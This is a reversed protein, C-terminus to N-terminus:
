HWCFINHLALIHAQSPMRKTVTNMIQELRWTSYSLLVNMFEYMTRTCSLLRPTNLNNLDYNDVLYLTLLEAPINGFRSVIPLMDSYVKREILNLVYKAVEKGDTDTWPWWLLLSILNALLQGLTFVITLAIVQLALFMTLLVASIVYATSLGISNIMKVGYTFLVAKPLINGDAKLGQLTRRGYTM